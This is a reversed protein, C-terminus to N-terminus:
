GMMEKPFTITYTLGEGPLSSPTISGDYSTVIRKVLYLGIGTGEQDLDNEVRKFPSFLDELHDDLDVGIGNDSYIIRPKGEINLLQISIIPNDKSYKISNTMLNLFLSEFATKNIHIFEYELTGFKLEATALGNGSLILQLEKKIDVLEKTHEAVSLSKGLSIFGRITKQGKEVVAELKDSIELVKKSNDKLAYKKMMKNLSGTNVLVSKLDHSVHYNFSDLSNNAMVLAENKIKL